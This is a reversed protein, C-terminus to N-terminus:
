MLVCYSVLLLKEGTKQYDTSLVRQLNPSCPSAYSTADQSGEFNGLHMMDRYQVAVIM